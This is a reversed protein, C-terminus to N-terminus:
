CHRILPTSATERAAKVPTKVESVKDHLEKSVSTRHPIVERVDYKGHAADSNVLM